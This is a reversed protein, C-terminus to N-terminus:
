LQRQGGITVTARWQPPNILIVPPNPATVCASLEIDLDGRIKSHAIREASSIKYLEMRDLSLDRYHRLRALLWQIQELDTKVNTWSTCLEDFM